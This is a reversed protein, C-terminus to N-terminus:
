FNNLWLSCQSKKESLNMKRKFDSSFWSQDGLTLGSLLAAEKVSLFNKFTKLMSNRLDFLKEKLFSGQHHEIVELKLPFYVIGSVREKMLYNRYFGSEPKKIEGELFLLDGYKIESYNFTRVLIRGKLPKKLELYFKYNKIFIGM